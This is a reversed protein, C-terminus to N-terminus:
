KNCFDCHFSPDSMKIDLKQGITPPSQQVPSKGKTGGVINQDIENMKRKGLGGYAARKHPSTPPPVRTLTFPQIASPASPKSLTTPHSHVVPKPICPRSMAYALWAPCGGLGRNRPSKVIDLNGYPPLPEFPPETTSGGDVTPRAEATQLPTATTNHLKNTNRNTPPLSPTPPISETPRQTSKISQSPTFLLQPM